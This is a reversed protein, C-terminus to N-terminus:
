GNRAEAAINYRLRRATQLWFNLCMPRLYVEPLEAKRKKGLSDQASLSVYAGIEEGWGQEADLVEAYREIKESLPDRALSTKRRTRVSEPLKGAMAERLLM